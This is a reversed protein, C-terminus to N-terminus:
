RVTRMCMPNGPVPTCRTLARGISGLLDRRTFPKVLVDVIGLGLALATDCVDPNGSMAFVLPRRTSPLRALRELFQVGSMGPMQLDVLVVEFDERELIHLAAEGGDVMEVRYGDQSLMEAVLSRVLVEDDVVLIRRQTAETRRPRTEAAAPQGPSERKEVPLWVTFTTGSGVQSEVTIEGRHAKAIWDCLSLGLGTGGSDPSSTDGEHRGKTTFFPKFLKPMHEAPIGCGSDGVQLFARGNDLGTSIHLQKVESGRMAHEANVVLNMLVQGIQGHDLLLSPIDPLSTVVEIGAGRLRIRMVNLVDKVVDNLSAPSRTSERARALNLLSQTIGSARKLTDRASTLLASSGGITHSDAIASDLCGLVAFHLNNFEHAIGGALLGIAALRQAHQLAETAEKRETIDVCICLCGVPEEGM